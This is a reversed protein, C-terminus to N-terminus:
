LAIADAIPHNLALPGLFRSAPVGAATRREPELDDARPPGRSELFVFALLRQQIKSFIIHPGRGAGDGLHQLGLSKHRAGALGIPDRLDLPHERGRSRVWILSRAHWSWTASM